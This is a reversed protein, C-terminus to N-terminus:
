SGVPPRDAAPRDLVLLDDLVQRAAAGHRGVADLVAAALDRVKVNRVNSTTRLATFADDDALGYLVRLAGKAQDIAARSRAADAVQRSAERSAREGIGSTVDTVFGRLEEAATGDQPRAVQGTLVVTREHGRADMIRHLSAFPARSRRAGALLQRVRERDEPHKHALVLATTPVVDGPEFGHILYTEDSWWWAEDPLRCRFSGTLQHAPAALDGPVPDVPTADVRAADLFSRHTDM